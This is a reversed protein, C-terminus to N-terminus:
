RKGKRKWPTPPTPQRPELSHEAIYRAQKRAQTVHSWFTSKPMNAQRASRSINLSTLLIRAIDPRMSLRILAERAAFRGDPFPGPVDPVQEVLAENRVSHKRSHNRWLNWGVAIMFDLLADVPRKFGDGPVRQETIAQWAVIEVDQCFDEIDDENARWRRFTAAIAPRLARTEEPTAEVIRNGAPNIRYRM